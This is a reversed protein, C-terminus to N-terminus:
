VHARGIERNYGVSEGPEITHIQSIVTKLTAIPKLIKNEEPNNGFGYLGIGTRVMDLQAEPYNIIGSTNVTHLLPM